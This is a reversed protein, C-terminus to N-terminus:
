PGARKPEANWGTTLSRPARLLWSDTVLETVEAGDVVDLHVLVIPHGDYHSTTFFKGPDSAILAEKDELSDVWVVLADPQDRIWAFMRPQTRWSPRGAYSEQEYAGPLSLAIRRVDEETVM